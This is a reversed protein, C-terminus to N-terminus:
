KKYFRDIKKNKNSLNNATLYNKSESNVLDKPSKVEYINNTGKPSVLDTKINGKLNVMKMIDNVGM